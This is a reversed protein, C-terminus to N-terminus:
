SPIVKLFPTWNSCKFKNNRLLFYCSSLLLVYLRNCIQSGVVANSIYLSGCSSKSVLLNVNSLFSWIDVWKSIRKLIYLTLIVETPLDTNMKLVNQPCRSWRLLSKRCSSWDPFLKTVLFKHSPARKFFELYSLKLSLKQYKRPKRWLINTSTHGNQMQKCKPPPPPPSSTAIARM